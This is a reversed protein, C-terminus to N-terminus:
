YRMTRGASRSRVLAIAAAKLAAEAHRKRFVLAIPTYFMFAAECGNWEKSQWSM